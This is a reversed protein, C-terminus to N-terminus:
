SQIRSKHCIFIRERKPRRCRRTMIEAVASTSYAGAPHVKPLAGACPATRVPAVAVVDVDALAVVLVTVVGVLVVDVVVLWVVVRAVGVM